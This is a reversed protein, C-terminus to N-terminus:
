DNAVIKDQFNLRYSNTQSPPLLLMKNTSNKIAKPLSDIENKHCYVFFM